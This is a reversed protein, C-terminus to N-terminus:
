VLELRERRGTDVKRGRENYFSIDIIKDNFDLVVMGLTADLIETM